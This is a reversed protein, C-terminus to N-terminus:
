RSTTRTLASTTTAVHALLARIRHMEKDLWALRARAQHPDRGVDYGRLLGARTRGPLRRRLSSETAALTRATCYSPGRARLQNRDAPLGHKACAQAHDFATKPM